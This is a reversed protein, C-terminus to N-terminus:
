FLNVRKHREEVSVGGDIRISKIKQSSIFTELQDIVDIHHAFIIFKLDNEILEAIYDKLGKLKALGTLKYCTTFTKYIRTILYYLRSLNNSTMM